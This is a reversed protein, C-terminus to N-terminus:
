NMPRLRTATRLLRIPCANDDRTRTHMTCVAWFRFPTVVLAYCASRASNRGETECCIIRSIVCLYQHRPVAHPVYAGPQHLCPPPNYRARTAAVNCFCSRTRWHRLEGDAIQRLAGHVAHPPPPNGSSSTVRSADSKYFATSFNTVSLKKKELRWRKEDLDRTVNRSFITCSPVSDDISRDISRSRDRM